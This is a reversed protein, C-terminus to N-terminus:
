GALGEESSRWSEFETRVAALVDGFPPLNRRQYGLRQVWGTELRAAIDVSARMPPYRYATKHADAIESFAVGQQTLAWWLDFLDRPERRAELMLWKNALIEKLDLVPIGAAPPTGLDTYPLHLPQTMVPLAARQFRVVDVLLEGGTSWPTTWHVTARMQDDRWGGAALVLDLGSDEAVIGVVGTLRNELDPIPEASIFDLDESIRFDPWYVRALATGGRLVLNGPNRAIEALLHNLVYDLEVHAVSIGLTASRRQLEPRGIV